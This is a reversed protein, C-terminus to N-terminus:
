MSVVHQSCASEYISDASTSDASTHHAFDAVGKYQLIRFVTTQHQNKAPTQEIYGGSTLEIVARRLTEYSMGLHVAMANLTTAYTARNPGAHMASMLLHMFVKVANGSMKALHEDLGRSLPLWTETTRSGGSHNQNCDSMKLNLGARM